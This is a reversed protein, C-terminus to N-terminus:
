SEGDESIDEHMIDQVLEEAEKKLAEPDSTLVIAMPKFKRLFETLEDTNKNFDYIKNLTQYIAAFASMNGEKLATELGNKGIEIFIRKERDIQVDEIDGFIDIADHLYNYATRRAIEDDEFKLIIQKAVSSRSLGKSYQDYAYEYISLRKKEADTLVMDFDLDHYHRYIREFPDDPRRRPLNGEKKVPSWAM